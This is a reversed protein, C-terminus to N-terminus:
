FDCSSSMWFGTGLSELVGGQIFARTKAAKLRHQTLELPNLIVPPAGMPTPRHSNTLAARYQHFWERPQPGLLTSLICCGRSKLLPPLSVLQQARKGSVIAGRLCYAWNNGQDKLLKKGPTGNVVIPFAFMTIFCLGLM